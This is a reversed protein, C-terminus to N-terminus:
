KKSRRWACFLKAGCCRIWPVLSRALSRIFFILIEVKPVFVIVIRWSLKFKFNIPSYSSRLFILSISELQRPSIGEGNRAWGQKMFKAWWYKIDHKSLLRENHTSFINLHILYTSIKNMSLLFPNQLNYLSANTTGNM